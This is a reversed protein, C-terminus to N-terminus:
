GEMVFIYCFFIHFPFLVLNLTHQAAIIYFFSVTRGRVDRKYDEKRQVFDFEYDAEHYKKYNDFTENIQKLNNFM